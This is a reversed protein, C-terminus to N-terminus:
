DEKRVLTGAEVRYSGLGLLVGEPEAGALEAPLDVEHLRQGPLAEMSVVYEGTQEAVYHGGVVNGDEDVLVALRQSETM